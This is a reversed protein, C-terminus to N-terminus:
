TSTTAHFRSAFMQEVRRNLERTLHRARIHMMSLLFYVALMVWTAAESRDHLWEHPRPFVISFPVCLFFCMLLAPPAGNML